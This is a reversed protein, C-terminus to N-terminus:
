ATDWVNVGCSVDSLKANRSNEHSNRASSVTDNLRVLPEVGTPVSEAATTTVISPTACVQVASGHTNLM